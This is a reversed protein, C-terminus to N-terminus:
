VNLPLKSCKVEGKEVCAVDWICGSDCDWAYYWTPADMLGFGRYFPAIVIGQFNKQVARWDVRYGRTGFNLQWDRDHIVYEEHFDLVQKPTSLHILNANEALRIETEYKLAELCFDEAECWRKWADRVSFWLGHPKMQWETQETDKLVGLPEVSYHILKM